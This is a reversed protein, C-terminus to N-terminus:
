SITARVEMLIKGVYNKGSGDMNDGWIPDPRHEVLKDRGTELLAKQAPKYQTFKALCAELMCHYSINNWQEVNITLKRGAAKAERAYFCDAVTDHVDKSHPGDICIYKIAQFRWEVGQYEYLERRIPHPLWFPTRAFNLLIGRELLTTSRPPIKRM